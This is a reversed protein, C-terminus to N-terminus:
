QFYEMETNIQTYWCAYENSHKNTHMVSFIGNTHEHIHIVPLIGNSHKNTHIVPCSGNSYKEVVTIM